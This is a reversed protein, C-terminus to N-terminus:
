TPYIPDYDRDIWFHATANIQEVLVFRCVQCFENVALNTNRMICQGAAHFIGCGQRKGGAYLGILKPDNKHSWLFDVVSFEPVQTASGRPNGPSIEGLQDASDCPVKTLPRHNDGIFKLVKPSVLGLFAGATAPDPVPIYLVSGEGFDAPNGGLAGSVLVTNGTPDRPAEVKLLGSTLPARGIVAKWQRRRLFVPDGVAFQFGGADFLPITLNAGSPTPTGSVVAGKKARHWTWKIAASSIVGGVTIGGVTTLNASNDTSTEPATYVGPLDVYEDGLGFSHGLEHAITRWVAADVTDPMPDVFNFAVARRGAVATVPMPHNGGAISMAIHALIEPRDPDAAIRQGRGAKIGAMMVVLSRNDFKFAPRDEAWLIGLRNDPPPGSIAVGNKTALARYFPTVAGAGGRDPHLSLMPTISFEAARPPTGLAMAPFGDIEDIFMRTSLTKWEEIVPNAANIAPDARLTDIWETRLADVTKGGDAPTPLGATYILTSVTWPQGAVPPLGPPVPKAVTKGAEVSTFVECRVSIGRAPAPVAVHWFNMSTALRDYPRTMPDKKLDHVIKNAIKELAPLDSVAPLPPGTFGDGLILINPVREPNITGAWTDPHGDVLEVRPVAPEASWPAAIKMEATDSQGKWTATIPITAGVADGAGIKLRGGNNGAAVVNAPPTYVVLHQETVDGVTDDTFEARVTFRTRTDDAGAPTLRRVVLPKPTMWIRRVAPHVHVRILAPSIQAPAVGGTNQTVVCELTFNSRTRAPPAASTFSVVGTTKNVAINMGEFTAGKDLAKFVPRFELKVDENPGTHADLYAKAFRTKDTGDAQVEVVALSAITLNRSTDGWVLHIDNGGSGSYFITRIPM